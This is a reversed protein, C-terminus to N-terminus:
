LGIERGREYNEEKERCSARGIKAWRLFDDKEGKPKQTFLNYGLRITLQGDAALKEIVAYDEPYNQFGGGADIAGLDSSCVDSSWDRYCRTHRRRSAFFFIVSSPD